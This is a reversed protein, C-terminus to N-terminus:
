LLWLDIFSICLFILYYQRAYIKNAEAVGIITIIPLSGFCLVYYLRGKIDICSNNSITYAQYRTHM